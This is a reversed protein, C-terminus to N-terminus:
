YQSPRKQTLQFMYLVDLMIVIYDKNEETSNNDNVWLSDNNTSSEFDQM